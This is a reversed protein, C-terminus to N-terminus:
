LVTKRYIAHSHYSVRERRAAEQAEQLAKIISQNGTVYRAKTDVLARGDRVMELNLSAEASASSSPDYLTLSLVNGDRGDINAVLQKGATLDKLRELSEEGYDQDLSPCKVFSM